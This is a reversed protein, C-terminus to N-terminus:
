QVAFLLLGALAPRNFPNGSKLGEILAEISKEERRTAFAQYIEILLRSSENPSLEYSSQPFLTLTKPLATEIKLIERGQSKKVWVYLEKELGEGKNLRYLALTAYNRVLPVGAMQAYKKLLTLAGESGQAELLHVLTPVLSLQKHDLLYSALDLFNEEPLHMSEQLLFLHVQHILSDLNIGWSTALKQHTQSLLKWGQLSGGMSTTPIVSLDHFQQTLIEKLGEVCAPDKMELLALVANWRVQLSSDKLLPYLLPASHPLLPVLNLALVDKKLAYEEIVQLGSLDGLSHLAKACALSLAPSSTKLMQVLKEKSLMDKFSGLAAVCAEKEAEGGHTLHARIVPLLDERHMSAAAHIASIRVVSLRHSMLSKLLYNAEKTPMLAFLSPFLVHMEQPVKYMLAEIQGCAKPHRKAALHYAAELRVILFPSSMAKLLLRDARDDQLASLLQISALQVFLQDSKLGEEVIHLCDILGAISCGYLSLLQQEPYPSQIGQELVGIALSKLLAFDHMGREKQYEQYLEFAQPTKKVQLLFQMQPAEVPYLSFCCFFCATKVIWSVGM